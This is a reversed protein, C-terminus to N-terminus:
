VEYLEKYDNILKDLKTKFAADKISQDIYKSQLGYVSLLNKKLDEQMSKKTEDSVQFNKVSKISDWKARLESKREDLYKQAEDVGLAPTQATEVKKLLEATFSDFDALVVKIEADKKCGTLMLTAALALPLMLKISKYMKLRGFIKAATAATHM